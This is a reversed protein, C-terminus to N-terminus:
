PVPNVEADTVSGINTHLDVGLYGEPIARIIGKNQDFEPFEAVFTEVSRLTSRGEDDRGLTYEGEFSSFTFDSVDSRIGAARDHAVAPTGHLVGAFVLGAFVVALTVARSIVIRVSPRSESRPLLTM